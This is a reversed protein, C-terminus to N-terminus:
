SPYKKTADASSELLTFTNLYGHTVSLDSNISPLPCEDCTVDTFNELSSLYKYEAPPLSVHM